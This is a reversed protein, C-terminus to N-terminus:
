KQKSPVFSEWTNDDFFVRIETIKRVHTAPKQEAEFRMGAVQSRATNGNYVPSSSPKVQASGVPAVSQGAADPFMSLQNVDADGTKSVLATAGETIPESSTNGDQQIMMGGEGRLLWMPNIQPFKNLIAQVHNLTPATRGNFISSLSASSIGTFASFAQQNMHQTNMIQRIREKM